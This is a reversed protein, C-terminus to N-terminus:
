ELNEPYLQHMHKVYNGTSYGEGGNRYTHELLIYDGSRNVAQWQMMYSHSSPIFGTDAPYSNFSGIVEEWEIPVKIYGYSEKGLEKSQKMQIKPYYVEVQNTDGVSTVSYNRESTLYFVWERVEDKPHVNWYIYSNGENVVIQPDSATTAGVCEWKWGNWVWISSGYAGEDSFLPVFYTKEDLQIVDQVKMEQTLYDMNKIIEGKSYFAKPTMTIYTIIIGAILAGVSFLLFIAKRSM